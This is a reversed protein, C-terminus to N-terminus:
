ELLKIVHEYNLNESKCFDSITLTMNGAKNIAQRVHKLKKYATNKSCGTLTMVDKATIYIRKLM